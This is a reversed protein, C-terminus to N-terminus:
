VEDLVQALRAIGDRIAAPTCHSFNLRLGNRQQPGGPVAFAESPVFAIRASDLARELLLRGDVDGELDLWIFVGHTPSRWRARPGFHRRLAAAMADRRVRYARCVRTIHGAFDNRDLYAALARQTLTGTDLDTSEKLVSLIPVLERPVILWGVRLAPALTKSFSGVYFVHGRSLASMPPQDPGEYRLFGYVDDEVIPVGYESAMAALRSRAEMSMSVSLPNHGEPNVYIFAPRFRRLVHEVADVDIGAARDTPVTHYRPEFPQVAQQFGPYVHHETLISAGPSLLLRALLSLGQQAGSTLFVEDRDCQVGRRRMLEVVNERLSASSPGYQLAQPDTSLVNRLALGYARRPFLEEAPLGLAFSTV